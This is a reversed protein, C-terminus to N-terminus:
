RGHSVRLVQGDSKAIVAIATGGVWGKPHSGTVTWKGGALTARYPKQSAIQTEGYIPTWVAVAIAIATGSDPVLGRPPRVNHEQASLPFALVFLAFVILQRTFSM